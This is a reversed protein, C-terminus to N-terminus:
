QNKIESSAAEETGKCGVVPNTAHNDVIEPSVPESNRSQLGSFRALDIWQQTGWYSNITRSIFSLMAVLIAQSAFEDSIRHEIVGAIIQYRLNASIGLFSAYVVATKLIPPRIIRQDDVLEPSILKRVSLIANSSAVAAISSVFGVGALKLGGFLVSAVRHSLNWNKGAVNKQFANDPISGLLGILANMSDPSNSEDSYSLFTITPAPLWVTFFDVVIGPLPPLSPPPHPINEDARSVASHLVSVGLTLIPAIFLQRRKTGGGITRTPQSPGCEESNKPSELGARISVSIRRSRPAETTLLRLFYTPPHPPPQPTASSTFFHHHQQKM